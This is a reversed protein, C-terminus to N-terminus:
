KDSKISSIIERVGDFSSPTNELDAVIGSFVLSEFKSIDVDAEKKFSSFEQVFKSAAIRLDLQLLQAQISNFQIISIRFFYLLVLEISAFPIYRVVQPIIAKETNFSGFVFLCLPLLLMVAIILGLALLNIVREKEKSEKFVEFSAALADIGLAIKHKEIIELYHDSKAIIQDAKEQKETILSQFESVKKDVDIKLTSIEHLPEIVTKRLDYNLTIRITKFTFYIRQSLSHTDEDQYNQFGLFYASLRIFYPPYSYERGSALTETICMAAVRFLIALTRTIDSRGSLTDIILEAQDSEIVQISSEFLSYFEEYIESGNIGAEEANRTLSRHLFIDKCSEVIPHDPTSDNLRNIYDIILQKKSKIKLLADNKEM